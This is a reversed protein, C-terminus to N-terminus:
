RDENSNAIAELKAQMDVIRKDKVAIQEKLDEIMKAAEYMKQEKHELKEHAMRLEYMAFAECSAYRDEKIM